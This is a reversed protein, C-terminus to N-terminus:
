YVFRLRRRGYLGADADICLALLDGRYSDNLLRSCNNAKIFRGADSFRLYNIVYYDLFGDSNILLPWFM